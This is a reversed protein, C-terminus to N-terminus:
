APRRQRQKASVSKVVTQLPGARTLAQSHPAMALAIFHQVAPQDFAAMDPALVM